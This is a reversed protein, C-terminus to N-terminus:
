LSRGEQDPWACRWRAVRNNPHEDAWQALVFQAQMMCSNLTGQTEFVLHKESCTNVNVLSCVLFILEVM